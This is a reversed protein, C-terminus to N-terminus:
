ILFLLIPYFIIIRDFISIILGVCYTLTSAICVLRFCFFFHFLNFFFNTL